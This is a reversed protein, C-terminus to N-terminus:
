ILVHCLGGQYGGKAVVVAENGAIASAFIFIFSVIPGWKGGAVFFDGLTKTQKGGQFVGIYLIAIFYAALVAVDVWHLGMM